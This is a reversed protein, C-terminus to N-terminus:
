SSRSRINHEQEFYSKQKIWVFGDVRSIVAVDIPGGVTEAADVSMRKRFSILSVLTEAMEALEAKPLHSVARLIPRIHKRYSHRDLREKYENLIGKNIEELKSAVSKQKKKSLDKIEALIKDPYKEMLLARLGEFLYNFFDPHVGEMFSRTMDKQAFPIIAADNNEGIKVGAGSKYKAKGHIVGEIEFSTVDPFVDDNGFGAVVLGSLRERFVDKSFLFGAIKKLKANASTSIPLKVFVDKKVKSITAAYKKLLKTVWTSSVKPLKDQKEFRQCHKVIEKEVIEKTKLKTIKKKKTYSEVKELIDDNIQNYYIMLSERFYKKQLTEPFLVKNSEVFSLLDKSYEKLTRFTNTRLNEQYMRIITEWPVGLLEPIGYIMIGVNHRKSLAFLKNVMYIKHVKEMELTAASDAALAVASKNMVAIEATM